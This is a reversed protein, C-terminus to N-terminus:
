DGPQDAESGDIYGENYYEVLVRKLMDKIMMMQMLEFYEYTIFNRDLIADIEKDTFEM